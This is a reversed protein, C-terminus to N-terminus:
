VSGMYLVATVDCVPAGLGSARWAPATFKQACPEKVLTPRSANPQSALAVQEAQQIVPKSYKKPGEGFRPKPRPWKPAGVDFHLCLQEKSHDDREGKALHESLVNYQTDLVKLDNNLTEVARARLKVHPVRPQLMEHQMLMLEAWRSMLLYQDVQSTNWKLVKQMDEKTYWGNAIVNSKIESKTLTKTKYQIFREQLRGGKKHECLRRLRAKLAANDEAIPRKQGGAGSGGGEGLLKAAVSDDLQGLAVLEMIRAKVSGKGGAESGADSSSHGLSLAIQSDTAPLTDGLAGLTEQQPSAEPLLSMPDM